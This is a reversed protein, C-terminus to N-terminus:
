AAGCGPPLGSTMDVLQIKMVRKGITFGTSGQYAGLYAVNAVGIVVLGVMAFAFATDDSLNPLVIYGLGVLGASVLVMAALDILLAACRAGWSALNTVGVRPQHGYNPVAATIPLPGGVWTSGDWYRHTGAPDGQAYYWGPAIANTM